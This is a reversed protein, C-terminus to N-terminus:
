FDFAEEVEKKNNYKDNYKFGIYNGDQDIDPPIPSKPPFPLMFYKKDDDIIEPYRRKGRQFTLYYSGNIKVKHHHIEVDVVHDLQKSGEYYGKNAIEKVLDKPAIGTNRTLQKAETSLQCPTIFLIGKSGFFHRCRDLLDRTDTGMPGSICGTTPMKNLYDVIVVALEYGDAELRLIYDFLTRYSWESPNARFMRITFGNKMLRSKVYESIEKGSVTTVDSPENNEAFYLYDYLFKLFVETDDEFSIYLLTPKKDPDKLNPKNYMAFQAFLSQVFGSKYDHQLGSTLVTEGPRFGGCLMDNLEQWGTRLRGEDTATSKVSNAAAELDEENEFNLDQIIGPTKNNTKNVLAELNAILKLTFENVPEGLGEKNLTFTARNLINQIEKEKYYNELHSRLNTISKKAGPVSMDTSIYKNFIDFTARDTRLIIDLSQLLTEKTYNDPNNIMEMCLKVLNDLVITEGGIYKQRSATLNIINKILMASSSNGLSEKIEHERYLVLIAKIVIDAKIM